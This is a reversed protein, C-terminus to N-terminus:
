RAHAVRVAMKQRRRMAFGVLGFGAIMMAWTAPEPVAATVVRFSDGPSSALLSFRVINGTFTATDGTEFGRLSPSMYNTASAGLFDSSALRGTSSIIGLIRTDFTITGTATEGFLPDFNVYYSNVATGTPAFSGSDFSLGSTLRVGQQESFARVNSNNFNNNGVAAPPSVVVFRGGLLRATGGTLTGTLQADAVGPAAATIAVAAALISLTKTM